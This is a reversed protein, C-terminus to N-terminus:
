QPQSTNKSVTQKESQSTSDLNDSSADISRELNSAMTNLRQKLSILDNLLADLLGAKDGLQVTAATASKLTPIQDALAKADKLTRDLSTTWRNVQVTLNQNFQHLVQSENELKSVSSNLKSVGQGTSDALGEVRGAQRTFEDIRQKLGATAAQLLKKEQELSKVTKRTDEAEAHLEKSAQAVENKIGTLATFSEADTKLGLVTQDADRSITQLDAHVEQFGQVLGQLRGTQKTFEDLPQSLATTDAQFLKSAQELSGVIKRANEAETRLGKSAQAAENKISALATFSAAETKLGHVTQGADRGLTQFDALVEQFGQALSAYAQGDQQLAELAQTKGTIQNSLNAVTIELEDHTKQLKETDRTLATQREQLTALREDLANEKRTLANVQPQLKNSKSSLTKFESQVRDRRAIADKMDRRATKTQELAAEMQESATKLRIELAEKESNLVTVQQTLSIRQEDLQPLQALIERHRATKEKFQQLQLELEQKGLALNKREEAVARYLEARETEFAMIKWGMTLLLLSVLGIMGGLVWVSPFSRDLASYKRPQQSKPKQNAPNNPIQNTENM